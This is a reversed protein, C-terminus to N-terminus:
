MTYVNKIWAAFFIDMSYYVIKNDSWVLNWKQIRWLWLDCQLEVFYKVSPRVCGGFFIKCLTSPPSCFLIGNLDWLIMMAFTLKFTSSLKNFYQISPSACNVTYNMLHRVIRKWVNTLGWINNLDSVSWCSIDKFLLHDCLYWKLFITCGGDTIFLINLYKNHVFGGIDDLRVFM